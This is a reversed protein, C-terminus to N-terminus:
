ALIIERVFRSGFYGLTLLVAGVVTSTVLWRGRVGVRYHQILVVTYIAWAIASLIAKHAKGSGFFNDLFFIGTALAFSLLVTGVLILNFIQKEVTMLPPLVPSLAFKKKEKLQRNIVALLIAMLAAINLVAYSLLSLSIHIILSPHAELHTFYTDSSVLDTLIVIATFAYTFPLLVQLPKKVYLLTLMLSIAWGSVSAINMISLNQGGDPRLLDFALTLLHLGLAFIAVLMIGSKQPLIGKKLRWGIWGALLLYVLITAVALYGSASHM